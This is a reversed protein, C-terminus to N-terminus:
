NLGVAEGTFRGMFLILGSRRDRILFFFPHDANFIKIKPEEREAAAADVAALTAAAAVTGEEDVEIMAEQVLNSLFIPEAKNTTAMRSFDARFPDFATKFGLKSLPEQFYQRQRLNFKPFTLQVEPWDSWSSDEMEARWQALDTATLKQVLRSLGNRTDPLLVLMETEGHLYPMAIMQFDPGRYYRFRNSQFMMPMKTKSGDSRFFSKPKTIGEYFESLWRGRFFATNFLVLRTEKTVDQPGVLKPIRGFTYIRGQENIAARAGASDNRFDTKNAAVKYAHRILKQFKPKLEISRDVWLATRTSLTRGRVHYYTKRLLEGQAKVAADSGDNGLVSQFELATSGEAGPQAMGLVAAISAPAFFRDGKETATLRYLDFAFKNHGEVQKLAAVSLDLGIPFDAERLKSDDIAINVNAPATQNPAPSKDCAALGVLLPFLLWRMM